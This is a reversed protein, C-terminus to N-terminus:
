YEVDDVAAGIRQLSTLTNIVRISHEDTHLLLRPIDDPEAERWDDKWDCSALAFIAEDKRESEGEGLWIVVHTASSYVKGMQAVQDNREQIDGQNICVADIWIRKSVARDRIRRLGEFLNQTIPLVKGSITITRSQSIDGDKDMGWSYSLAAYNSTPDLPAADLDCRILSRFRSAPHLTMVRIYGSKPLEEYEYYESM